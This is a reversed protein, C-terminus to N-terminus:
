QRLFQHIFIALNQRAAERDSLGPSWRSLDGLLMKSAVGYAFTHSIAVLVRLEQNADVLGLQQARGLIKLMVEHIADEYRVLRECGLFSHAPMLNIIRFEKPHNFAWEVYADAIAMFQAAPDNCPSAAAQRVCADHLLMLANEAMAHVLVSIEPVIQRLEDPTALVAAAVEDLAPVKGTEDMLLTLAKISASFMHRGPEAISTMKRDRM